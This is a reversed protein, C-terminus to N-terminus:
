QEVPKAFEARLAEGIFELVPTTEANPPVADRITRLLQVLLGMDEAPIATQQQVNVLVDKPLISAVVRMYTSPDTLRVRAVTEAGGAAWDAAIVHIVDESFRNRAGLPRGAPNGSEGPKWRPVVNYKKTTPKKM